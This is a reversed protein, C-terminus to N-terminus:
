ETKGDADKRTKWQEYRGEYRKITVETRPNDKDWYVRSGDGSAIIDRCDDALVKYKVLIDNIAAQLNALDVVRRERRYFLCEVVVPETIPKTLRPIYKKCSEEYERYTKGQIVM